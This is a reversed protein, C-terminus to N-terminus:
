VDNKKLHVLTQQRYHEMAEKPISRWLLFQTRLDDFLNRNLRVWDGPQGSRRTLRIKVEDIGEIESPASRLEFRETVGLDFPALALSAELGLAGDDHRVMRTDRAMFAGLGTDSFHEFHEQLFSVVGTLDYASVTFPFTIEHIDGQPPPPRWSRLLGPNASKSAKIAPYIASVLVTAMVILITVIANTSSYNIEPVQVWGFAALVTLIKMSGQAILYGGMGGLVSYVLAESFFLSAVHPPALGLASFTYIEKERDAVSGLMTGFIVLAGLLVPFLLDGAGSAEVVTGLVHRYVGDQRTAMVPTRDMMRAYEGAIREADAADRTYLHIVSVKGGARACHEDSMVVVSDTPLNAWNVQQTLLDDAAGTSKAGTEQMQAYDIPIISTNDMDVLATFRTSDILAGVELPIGKVIVRDGPEVGLLEAVAETMFVRERIADPDDIGLLDRLDERHRLELPDIGLIGKLTVPNSGDALGVVFDPDKPFEPCVWHRVAADSVGGWRAKVLEVFDPNVTGWSPPHYLVGTYGPSPATFLRVIGRQTDFSAFVLITFTLLVITIATLATRLPRRRMTSIGMSMAAMVTNFRSIDAVHITNTMGQMAKLETEFKQMIIFIVLSSLVVVTFGLFIIIPTQAVAFAPHSLYLVVFTVLFFVVFWIVQKYIISSGILLRELAFAFPICLALLILVATVLDDMISRSSEYVPQSSLLAAAALSEAYLPRDDEDAAAILDQARGHLEEISSNLIDKSRLLSLRTENLRWLDGAGQFSPLIGLWNGTIPFGKGLSERMDGGAADDGAAAPGGNNLGVASKEGFIKAQSVKDEIFFTVAGDVTRVNGRESSDGGLNANGIADFVTAADPWFRPPMLYFGPRANLMNIRTRLTDTSGMDSVEVVTGREDFRAAFATPQSGSDEKPLGGFAYTGNQDSMGLLFPDFAPFKNHPWYIRNWPTEINVMVVAGAVPLNPISSGRHRGMTMAGEATDNRFRPTIYSYDSPIVRRLSLGRQDAVAEDAGAAPKLDGLQAEQDGVAAMIRGIEGINREVSDLDLRDLTDAPTGERPLTEHMTGLVINYIGYRGAIEGGHILGDAAWLLRPQALASDVSALEFFEPTRGTEALRNYARLFSQQVRGYLGPHDKDRNRIESDGGILVGWRETSDGLLLSVHLTIWREALLRNLEAASDLMRKEAVLENQRLAIEQRVAALVRDLLDRLEPDVPRNRSLARRLDNWRDFEAQFADVEAQVAAVAQEDVVEVETRLANVQKRLDMLESRLELAMDRAQDRIREGLRRGGAEGLHALPDPTSVIKEVQGLFDTEEAWTATRAKLTAERYRDNSELAWYFQVVGEHSRAQNDFFALVVHRKPRNDQFIEALRLLGACNAAARAGPALRPFEGFTDLNAGVVIVEELGLEFVPDTGPLFAIVNRGTTRKWTIESHITATGGLPLEGRAGDYYFRPLNANSRLYHHHFSDGNEGGVFIVARAGLRFAKLWQMGANYDMVVIRDRVPVRNLQEDSGDGIDVLEGTLGEPPSVPPLIADPRGPVLPITRGGATLECRRVETQLSPFEQVVITEIGIERLRKEVHDAAAAYEETGSLRHPARLLAEADARFNALASTIGLMMFLFATTAAKTLRKSGWGVLPHPGRVAAPNAGGRGQATPPLPRSQQTPGASLLRNRGGVAKAASTRGGVAKHRPLCLDASFALGAFLM